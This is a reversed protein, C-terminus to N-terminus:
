RLTQATREGLSVALWLAGAAGESFGTAALIKRFPIQPEGM